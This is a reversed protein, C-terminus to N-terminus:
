VCAVYMCMLDCADSHMYAVSTCNNHAAYMCNNIYWHEGWARKAYRVSVGESNHAYQGSDRLIPPGLNSEISVEKKEEEEEEKEGEAKKIEREREALHNM